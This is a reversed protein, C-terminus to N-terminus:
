KKAPCLLLVNRSVMNVLMGRSLMAMHTNSYRKHYHSDRARLHKMKREQLNIESITNVFDHYYYQSLVFVKGFFSQLDLLSNRLILRDLDNLNKLEEWTDSLPDYNFCKSVMRPKHGYYFIFIKNGVQRGDCCIMGAPMPKIVSWKNTYIDYKQSHQNDFIFIYRDNYCLILPKPIDTCVRYIMPAMEKWEDNVTDYRYVTNPEIYIEWFNFSRYCGLFFIYM